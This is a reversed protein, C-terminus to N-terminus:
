LWFLTSMSIKIKAPVDMPIVISVDCGNAIDALEVCGIMEIGTIVWLM